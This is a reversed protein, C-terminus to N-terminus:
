PTTVKAWYNAHSETEMDERLKELNAPETERTSNGWLLASKGDEEVHYGFPSGSKYQWDRESLGFVALDSLQTPWQGKELRYRKSAISTLTLRRVMDHGELAKAVSSKSGTMQSFLTANWSGNKEAELAVELKHAREGLGDLGADALNRYKQTEDWVYKRISPLKWGLSLLWRTEIVFRPADSDFYMFDNLESQMAMALEGDVMDKWERPIDMPRNMKAMLQSLDEATWISSDLSKRIAMYQLEVCAINVLKSVYCFSFDCADICNQMADVAQMARERDVIHVAYEFELGLLHMVSRSNQLSPLLTGFGEFHIPQWVPRGTTKLKKIQAIVPQIEDLFAGLTQYYEESGKFESQQLKSPHLRDNTFETADFWATRSSLIRTSVLNAIEGWEQSGSMTSRERYRQTMSENDVVVGLARARDMDSALKSQCDLEHWVLVVTVSTVILALAILGTLSRWYWPSMRRSVASNPSNM